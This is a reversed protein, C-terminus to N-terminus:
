MKLNSYVYRRKIDFDLVRTHDVLVSFPGDALHMTSQRLIQNLVTRHTEAFALFKQTDEPLNSGGSNAAGSSSGAVPLAENSDSTSPQNGNGSAAGEPAPTGGISPTQEQIHALQEQRTEKQQIKRKADEPQTPAAHVLFFAEVTAQLVLVAHHDPTDALDKLCFSLADWLAGLTLQDSLSSLSPEKAAAPTAAAKTAETTAAPPKESAETEVEMAESEGSGETSSEKKSAEAENVEQVTPMSKNAALKSKKMSQLAADRLQIIVKLVRLFFAQSSTKNTLANMSPLQLEAGGKVKSPAHIVVAEKTFRDIVAGKGKKESSSASAQDDEGIFIFVFYKQFLDTKISCFIDRKGSATKLNRLESQLDLINQRVVSGLEQAGQLLLDLITDRTQEPGYSLNLLLATVDELGEESCTKSTLVEVALKLHESRIVNQNKSTDESSEKDATTTETQKKKLIDPQGLSILSLLRLLKDTLVSNRRIVPSALMGLLQGFPSHEFNILSEDADSDNGTDGSTGSKLSGVNSHSRAVSKGKKNSTSLHDLKLM